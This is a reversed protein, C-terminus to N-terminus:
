GQAVIVHRMGDVVTSKEIKAFLEADKMDFEDGVPIGSYICAELIPEGTDPDDLSRLSMKTGHGYM